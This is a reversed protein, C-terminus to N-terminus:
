VRTRKIGTLQRSKISSLTSDIAAIGAMEICVVTVRHLTVSHACRHSSTALAVAGQGSQSHGQPDLMRKLSRMLEYAVPDKVEPLLARKMVGIGHEASISGAFKAVIGFVADNVEDWAQPDASTPASRSPSTTTSTATASIASPVPRCGPIMAEVKATAEAIFDPVANVPVSVDHKISGGEYKQTDAIHHRLLWLLKTQEISEAITEDEILHARRPRM